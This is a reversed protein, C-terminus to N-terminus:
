GKAQQLHHIRRLAWSTSNVVFIGSLILTSGVLFQRDLHEGLLIYGFVVGFLPTIFSLIGIQSAQYRSLLWFWMLFAVFSVAVSQFLLNSWVMPTSNFHWQQTVTAAVALLVFGVILQYFVVQKAPVKALSTCRVIVTTLSWALAAIFALIDGIFTSSTVTSSPVWFIVGIGSFAILIGVWQALSMRESPIFLHLILATFIPSSYLFVVAHAATTRTLAEGLLFFELAFFVGALVGYKKAGSESAFREKKLRMYTLILVAAFLSRLALQVIPAMDSSVTKIAVQQGGMIMCFIVMLSFSTADIPKRQQM